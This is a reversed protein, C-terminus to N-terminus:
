RACMIGRWIAKLIMLYDHETNMYAIGSLSVGPAGQRDTSLKLWSVDYILSSTLVRSASISSATRTCASNGHRPDLGSMLWDCSTWGPVSFVNTLTHPFHQITLFRKFTYVFIFKNIHAKRTYSYCTYFLPAITLQNPNIHVNM